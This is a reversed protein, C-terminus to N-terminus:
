EKGGFGGIMSNIVVVVAVVVEVLFFLPIELSSSNKVKSITEVPSIQGKHTQQKKSIKVGIILQHCSKTDDM